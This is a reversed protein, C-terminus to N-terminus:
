PCFTENLIKGIGVAQTITQKTPKGERKRERKKKQKGKKPQALLPLYFLTWLLTM